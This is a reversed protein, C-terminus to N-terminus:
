RSESPHTDATDDAPLMPTSARERLEENGFLIVLCRLLVSIAALGLVSFGVPMAAKIMWRYELGGAHPSREGSMYSRMVLDSSYDILIWTLPLMLFVLGIIEVIAKLRASFRERILEIRVHANSVYAFGLCLLFLVAHLHWEMEQLRISGVTFFRRLIVDTSIVLMLPIFLWSAVQGIRRTFTMLVVSITLLARM